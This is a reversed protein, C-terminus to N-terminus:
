IANKGEKNLPSGLLPSSPASPADRSGQVLPGFSGNAFPSDENSTSAPFRTCGGSPNSKCKFKGFGQRSNHGAKRIRDAVLFFENLRSIHLDDPKSHINMKVM